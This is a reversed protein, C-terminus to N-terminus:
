EGVYYQRGFGFTDGVQRWQSSAARKIYISMGIIAAIIATIFITYEVISVGKRLNVM